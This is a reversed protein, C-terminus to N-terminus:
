PVVRIRCLSFAPPLQRIHKSTRLVEHSHRRRQRLSHPPLLKFLSFLPFRFPSYLFSEKSICSLLPFSPPTVVLFLLCTAVLPFWNTHSHVVRCREHQSKDYSVSEFPLNCICFSLFFSLNGFIALISFLFCMDILQSAGNDSWSSFQDISFAAERSRGRMIQSLLRSFQM